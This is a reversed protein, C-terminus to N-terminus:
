QILIDSTIRTSELLSLSKSKYYGVEIYFDILWLLPPPIATSPKIQTPSNQIVIM